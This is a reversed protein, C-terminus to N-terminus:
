MAQYTFGFVACVGLGAFTGGISVCNAGAGEVDGSLETEGVRDGDGAAVGSNDGEAEPASRSAGPTGAPRGAVAGNAACADLLGRPSVLAHAKVTNASSETSLLPDPILERIIKQAAAPGTLEIWVSTDPHVGIRFTLFPCCTRELEVFNALDSIRGPNADFSLRVGNRLM